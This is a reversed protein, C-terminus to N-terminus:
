ALSSVPVFLRPFLRNNLLKLALSVRPGSVWDKSELFRRESDSQREPDPERKRKTTQRAGEGGKETESGVEGQSGAKGQPIATVLFPSYVSSM